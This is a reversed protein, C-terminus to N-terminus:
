ECPSGSCFVSNYLLIREMSDSFLVVHIKASRGPGFSLNPSNVPTLNSFLPSLTRSSQPLVSYSPSSIGTSYSPNDASNFLPSAIKTASPNIRRETMSALPSRPEYMSQKTSSPPGIVLLFPTLKGPVSISKGAIPSFSLNARSWASFHPASQTATDYTLLASSKRGARFAILAAPNCM